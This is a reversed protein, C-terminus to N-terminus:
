SDKFGILLKATSRLANDVALVPLREIRYESYDIPRAGFREKYEGLSQNQGSEGLHYWKFGADCADRIAAWDAAYAAKTKSALSYNLAARTSHANQPGSLVINGAAPEGDVSALYLRFAPGLTQAIAQLKTLPDRRSARFRALALPERQRGAWREVSRLYLKNYYVDLMDGGLHTTVVVGMREATRTGRRGSNRFRAWTAEAGGSLDIVHARRPVALAGATDAEAWISAQIPNPRIHTYLAQDSTLDTVIESVAGADLGPGVLGGIGWGSAFGSRPAPAPLRRVMPLVFRRGDDLRYLRSADRFNGATRIADLWMPTHEILADPDAGVIEDWAARPAPSLADKIAM